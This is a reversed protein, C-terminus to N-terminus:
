AARSRRFRALGTRRFRPDAKHQMHQIYANDVAHDIQTIRRIGRDRFISSFLKVDAATLLRPHHPRQRQSAGASHMLLREFDM